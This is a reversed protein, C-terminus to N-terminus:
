SFESWNIDDELSVNPTTAAAAAGKSSAVPKDQAASVALQWALDPNEKALGIAVDQNERAVDILLDKNDVAVQKIEERHEWAAEKITERNDYAVKVGASTAQAWRVDTIAGSCVGSAEKRAAAMGGAGGYEVRVLLLLYVSYAVQALACVCCKPDQKPFRTRLGFLRVTLLWLVFSIVLM